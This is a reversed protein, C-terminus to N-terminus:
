GFTYTPIPSEKDQSVFSEYASEERIVFLHECHSIWVWIKYRADQRQTLERRECKASLAQVGGQVWCLDLFCRKIMEGKYGLAILFEKCGYYAYIKMIHWLIPRGGIEVMPKPKVTTVEQLRTGLGGALIIVKM